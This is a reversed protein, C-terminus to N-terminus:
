AKSPCYEGSQLRRPCYWGGDRSSIKMKGHYQCKPAEQPGAQPAATANSQSQTGPTAGLSELRKIFNFVADANGEVETDVAFGRITYHVTSRPAKKITTSDM